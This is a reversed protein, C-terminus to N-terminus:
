RFSPLYAIDQAQMHEMSGHHEVGPKEYNCTTYYHGAVRWEKSEEEREREGDAEPQCELSPHQTVLCGPLFSM